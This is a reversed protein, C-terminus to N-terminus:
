IVTIRRGIINNVSEDEFTDSFLLDHDLYISFEFGCFINDIINPIYNFYLVRFNDKLKINNISRGSSLRIFNDKLGGFTIINTGNSQVSFINSETNCLTYIQNRNLGYYVPSLIEFTYARSTKDTDNFSIEKIWPKFDLMDKTRDYKFGFFEEFWNIKLLQQMYNEDRIPYIIKNSGQSDRNIFKNIYKGIDYIYKNNKLLDMTYYTCTDCFLKIGNNYPYQYKRFDGENMRQFTSNMEFYDKVNVIIFESALTPACTWGLKFGDRYQVGRDGLYKMMGFCSVNKNDSIIDRVFRMCGSEKIFNDDDLFVVWDFKDQANYFMFNDMIADHGNMSSYSGCIRIDTNYRYNINQILKEFGNVKCLSITEDWSDDCNIFLPIDNVDDDHFAIYYYLFNELILMNNPGTNVVFAIKDSM